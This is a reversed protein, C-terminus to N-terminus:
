KGKQSRSGGQIVWGLSVKCVPHLKPKKHPTELHLTNTEGEQSLIAGVGYASADTLVFFPKTFDPQQLMPKECMTNRLTEFATQQDQGWHWPTTHHTLYLLPCAKKSYDQIFYQYYGTFGLFKHVEQVNHPMIWDKVKAIKTNDMQVTGQDVNVGLFKITPQEFTCKEPKTISISQKERM